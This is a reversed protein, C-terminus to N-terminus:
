RVQSVLHFIMEARTRRTMIDGCSPNGVTGIADANEIKGVNKPNSFIEMVKENYM